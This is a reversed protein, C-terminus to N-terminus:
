SQTKRPTSTTQKAQGPERKFLSTVKDWVGRINDAAGPSQVEGALKQIEKELDGVPKAATDDMLGRYTELQLKALQLNAKAGEFKKERAMREALRLAHQVDVLPSDEKHAYFRIGQTQAQALEAAADQPKAILEIARRLKREVFGLDVLVATHILEADALKLGKL